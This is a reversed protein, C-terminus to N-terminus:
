KILAMKQSQTFFQGLTTKFDIRYIYIGSPVNLGNENKGDWLVMHRGSEKLGLNFTRVLQGTLNIIELRVQGNEPLDYGIRTDPNFPNPFNQLLGFDEPIEASDMTPESVSTIEGSETITLIQNIEVNSLEQLIGSPWYITIKDIVSNQGLGFELDLSHMSAYSSGARVEDMQKLDGTEVVVRAGVASRNSMVGELRLTIWNNVGGPNLYLKSKGRSVNVLFLDEYGDNNFDACVSGRGDGEDAIGFQIAREGFQGNGLNLYFVNRKAKYAFHMEGNIVYLDKDGDNDCDFFNVGWGIGDNVIGAEEAVDTFSRDGNNRLLYDPKFNGIYIDLYGDNNYDYFDIGMGDSVPLNVEKAIDKFTGDGNNVYLGDLGFEDAVYFDSDGDNDMDFFGVGLSTGAFGTNTEATVDTFTGDTNNRYLRCPYDDIAQSRNLVFIDLYADNNYDTLAVSTSPGLDGVGAAATVDIFNASGDNLYLRNEDFYNAVYIDLDGDNDLDGCVAGLGELTDAIGASQARELFVGNQNNIYLLNPFGKGDPIFMDLYGDNNFDGSAVGGGYMWGSHHHDIGAQAGVELFTNQALTFGPMLVLFFSVILDNMFRM